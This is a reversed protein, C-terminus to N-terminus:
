ANRELDAVFDGWWDMMEIREKMYEAHNYADRVQNPEIHALQREIVDPRFTGVENLTTSATSRFGHATAVGKYGMRGMAYSLANESMPKAPTRDNPFLFPSAGSHPQLERLVDLAQASLPVEHARKGGM